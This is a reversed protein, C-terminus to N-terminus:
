AHKAKWAERAAQQEKKPLKMHDACMFGFRPGKSQNKCGAVRCSMDLKRGAAPGRRKGAPLAKGGMRAAIAQALHEVFSSFVDPTKPPRPMIAKYDRMPDKAVISDAFGVAILGGDM